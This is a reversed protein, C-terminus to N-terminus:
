NIRRPFAKLVYGNIYIKLVGNEFTLGNKAPSSKRGLINFEAKRKKGVIRRHTQIPLKVGTIRPTLRFYELIWRLFENMPTPGWISALDFGLAVTKSGFINGLVAPHADVYQNRTIDIGQLMFHSINPFNGLEFDVMIWPFSNIYVTDRHIGISAKYFSWLHYNASSIGMMHRLEESGPDEIWEWYGQWFLGRGGLSLYDYFKRVAENTVTWRQQNASTFVFVARYYKLSDLFDEQTAYNGTYGMDELLYYVYIGTVPYPALDLVLFQKLPMLILFIVALGM